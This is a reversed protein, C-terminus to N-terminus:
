NKKGSNAPYIINVNSIKSIEVNGAKDTSKYMINVGGRDNITFTEIYKVWTLGGNLSYETKLIESNDDNAVLTVQVSSIYSGDPNKNGKFTILTSPKVIDESQESNLISSPTTSSEFIGDNNADILIKNDSQESVDFTIKTLSTLPVNNFYVTETTNGDDISQIRANFSGSQTANGLIKYIEGEPLFAFKNGDIIEYDVGDINNELDGNTIPGTHNGNSDYIHLDIPSHFSVIKGTIKPCSSENISINTFNAPTISDNNLIASVLEKVGNASPMLAHIANKYFYTQTSILYKSSILPVTGDGNVYSINYEIDGSNEKNLMFIKGLTPTGCGVINYTTVGYDSPNMNDVEDHFQKAKDILLSNRGTNRLFDGTQNYDLKGKTSNNDIDDLDYVYGEFDVYNKSPLLQYISPMNQSIIKIRETNLGILGGLFSANLNDGYNIIKFAKPAGTHPTGLDIFKDISNAGYEVLFTKTILGGMSHAIVDIENSHTKAKIEEIKLKFTDAIEYINKRWDYPFVFLDEDIKYGSNQLDEILENFFDDKFTNKIISSAIIPTLSEGTSSLQLDNLYSDSPSLIMESLNMWVESGDEKNLYSGMIGPVIIVPNRTPQPPEVNSKLPIPTFSMSYISPENNESLLYNNALSIWYADSLSGVDVYNNYIETVGKQKVIVKYGGNDFQIDYLYWDSPAFSSITHTNRFLRTTLTTTSRPDQDTIYIIPPFSAFEMIGHTYTFTIHLYGNVYNHQYNELGFYIDEGDVITATDGFQVQPKEDVIYPNTIASSVKLPFSAILGLVLGALTISIRWRNIDSKVINM